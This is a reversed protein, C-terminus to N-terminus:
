KKIVLLQTYSLFKLSKSCMSFAKDFLATIYNLEKSKYSFVRALLRTFLVTNTEVKVERFYKKMIKLDKVTLPHEDLTGKRQTGFKGLLFKRAFNLLPNFGFNEVFVGTGGEKLVRAIEPIAKKIDIHHLIYAGIVIDFQSEKIGLEENSMKLLQLPFSDKKGVVKKRALKLMSISVDLGVIVMGERILFRSVRGGGIGCELVREVSQLSKLTHFKNILAVEFESLEGAAFYEEEIKDSLFNWFLEEKM